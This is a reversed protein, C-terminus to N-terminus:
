QQMEERARDVIVGHLEIGRKEALKLNAITGAVTLRGEFWHPEGCWPCDQWGLDIDVTRLQPLRHPGDLIAALEADTLDSLGCFFLTALSVLASLTPLLSARFASGAFELSQIHPLRTLLEQADSMTHNGGVDRGLTLHDICTPSQIASVFPAFVPSDSRTTDWLCLSNLTKFSAVLDRAAPSASLPGVLELDWTGAGGLAPNPRGRYRGLSSPERAVHMYLCSLRSYTPLSRYVDTSFPQAFGDLPDVIRLDFLRPLAMCSAPALLMKAIRPSGSVTLHRVNTLDCFLTRLRAAKPVAADKASDLTIEIEEIYSACPGASVLECLEELHAYSSVRLKEFRHKRALHLFVKSVLGLYPCQEDAHVHHCIM